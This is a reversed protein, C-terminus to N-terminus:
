WWRANVIGTVRLLHGIYPTGDGKRIKEGFLEFALNTAIRVTDNTYM